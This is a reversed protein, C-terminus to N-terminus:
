DTDEGGENNEAGDNQWSFSKMVVQGATNEIFVDINQQESCRATYYLRFVDKTLPYLDNPALLTGDDLRLEGSGDNQFFRISYREESYYGERILRCRIEATEGDAIQKQVPMTELDFGYASQIDLGDDCACALSMVATLLTMFSLFKGTKKM